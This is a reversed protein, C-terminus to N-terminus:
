MLFRPLLSDEDRLRCDSVRLLKADSEESSSEWAVRLQAVSKCEAAGRELHSSFSLPLKSIWSPAIIHSMVRCNEMMLFSHHLCAPLSAQRHWQWQWRWIEEGDKASIMPSERLKLGVGKGREKGSGESQKKGM